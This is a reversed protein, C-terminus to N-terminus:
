VLGVVLMGQGVHYSMHVLWRLDNRPAVFRTHGLLGDSAGFLTAGVFALPRGTYAVAMIMTVIVVMYAAVPFRLRSAAVARLVPRGVFGVACLSVLAGILLLPTSTESTALAALGYMLHGVLFSGLGLEFRDVTPLLFVDGALGFLLALVVWFRVTPDSSTTHAFGILAVMVMPKAMVELSTKNRYVSFWDIVAAGLAAALTILSLM